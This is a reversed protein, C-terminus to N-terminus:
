RSMEADYSPSSVNPRHAATYTRGALEGNAPDCFVQEFTRHQKEALENLLRVAEASDDSVLTSGTEVTVPTTDMMNPFSKTIAHAKRLEINEPASFIRAFAAADSENARKNLRAHGMVIQSFTHESVDTADGKIIAKSIEAVSEINRLKMIDIQPMPSKGKTIENLHQALLRGRQSHLLHHVAAQRTLSPSAEILAAIMGELKEPLVSVANRDNFHPVADTVRTGADTDEDGDYYAAGDAAASKLYDRFEGFLETMAAAKDIEKNVLIQGFYGAFNAVAEDILDPNTLIRTM